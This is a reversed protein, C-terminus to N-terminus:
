HIVLPLMIKKAPYYNELQIDEMVFSFLDSRHEKLKLKPFQKPEIELQARINTVHEKYIHADGISITLEGAKLGTVHAVMHTLLAYSAINFPLGLGVDCSRQTMMCDLYGDKVRFQFMAHCPPLAMKEIDAPNWASVIIRRSTPDKKLLDIARQIQDIGGNRSPYNGGFSRWQYGYIPGLDTSGHKAANGDWIHVGQSSLTDCDTNGSLFWLLEAVVGKWYVSKTTLLPMMGGRLNFKLMVGFISHTGNEGLPEALITAILHLYQDEEKNQYKYWAIDFDDHYERVTQIYCCPITPFHTDCEYTSHIHTIILEKCLPHHIAEEYLQAGGAVFIKEYNQAEKLAEDLTSATIIDSLRSKTVVIVHRNKLTCPLSLFTTKGMIVAAHQTQRWFHQQDKSLNWPISYNFGIGNKEDIAVIISFM